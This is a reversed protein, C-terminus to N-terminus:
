LHMQPIRERPNKRKHRLHFTWTRWHHHQRKRQQRNQRQPPASAGAGAAFATAGRTSIMSASAEPFGGMRLHIGRQEVLVSLNYVRVIGVARNVPTILRNLLTPFTSAEWPAVVYRNMKPHSSHRRVVSIAIARANLLVCGVIHLKGPLKNGGLLMPKPISADVAKPSGQHHYSTKKM